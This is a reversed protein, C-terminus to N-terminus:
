QRETLTQREMERSRGTERMKGDNEEVKQIKKTHSKGKETYKDDDGDDEAHEKNQEHERYEDDQEAAM